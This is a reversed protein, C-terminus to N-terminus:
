VKFRQFGTVTERVGNESRKPCATTRILTFHHQYAAPHLSGYFTHSASLRRGWSEVDHEVEMEYRATAMSLHDPYTGEPDSSVGIGLHTSTIGKDDRSTTVSPCKALLLGTKLPRLASGPWLAYSWDVEAWRCRGLM